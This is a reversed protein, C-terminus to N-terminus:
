NLAPTNKQTNAFFEEDFTLRSLSQLSAQNIRDSVEVQGRDDYHRTIRETIANYLNYMNRGTDEEYSPRNWVQSVEKYFRESMVKRHVLSQLIVEGQRQLIVRNALAGFLELSKEFQTVAQAVGLSLFELNINGKHRKNASIENELATMGNSCILRLMGVNFRAQSSGDHSNRVSIRLAVDDGRKMTDAKVRRVYNGFTYTTAMRAGHNWVVSEEKWNDLGQLAFAQKTKALLDGHQIITYHDSVNGVVYGNDDRRNCWYETPAGDRTFLPEQSVTFHPNNSTDEIGDFYQKLLNKHNTRLTDKASVPSNGGINKNHAHSMTNNNPKPNGTPKIAKPLNTRASLQTM